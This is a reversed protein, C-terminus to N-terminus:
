KRGRGIKQNYMAVIRGRGGCESGDIKEVHTLDDEDDPIFTEKCKGCKAEIM